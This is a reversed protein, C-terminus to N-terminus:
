KDLVFFYGLVFKEKNIRPKLKLFMWDLALIIPLCIIKCVRPMLIEKQSFCVSFPGRGITKVTIKNFGAESFIRKLAEHTYRWYDHTDPHYGILFPVAGFIKGGNKLVRRMELILFKYNYIHELLNFVLEMDIENNNFPLKDKELNIFKGTQKEFSLDLNKIKLDDSKKFFRHYSAQSQGSGLDLVNGKLEYKRCEENMLIRYLDKGRWIEKIYKIM